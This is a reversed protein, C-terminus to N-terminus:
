PGQNTWGSPIPVNARCDRYIQELDKVNGIHQQAAQIDKVLWGPLKGGLHSIEWQDVSVNGSATSPLHVESDWCVFQDATVSGPFNAGLASVAAQTITDGQGTVTAIPNHAGCAAVSLIVGVAGGVALIKKM